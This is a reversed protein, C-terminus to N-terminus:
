NDQEPISIVARSRLDDVLAATESLGQIRGIEQRLRRREADSLSAIDGPQVEHLQLLVYDGTALTIGTASITDGATAPLLFAEQVLRREAAQSQRDILGSDVVDLEEAAAIDAFPTGGRLQTLLDDGHNRALDRARSDLLQQRAQDHVEELPRPAAPEHELNRIVVLHEASIEVPESNAGGELIDAQFAVAAVQPHEGIGTGGARTLWDSSQLELDLADAAGQLSDPQEFVLNALLESRDYFLESRQESLYEALLEARAEEFPRAVEPRIDTLEIIHFGFPSRVIDSRGGKELAFVAQEFEPTMLGRGFFGLDGGNGASGPDDSESKALEGFDEGADLRQLVSEARARAAAIAEDDADAPLSVLIHRAQREEPTIFREPQDDYLQRLAEEDIDGPVEINEAKLEIYQLRVREPTMFGELHSDYWTRIDEDSIEVKDTFRALPLTLHSFRRLQRQLAYAMDATAATPAATGTIGNIIQQTLMERSLRWEFESPNMGQLRLAREYREKSFRGDEQFGQVASIRAAVLQPSIAFGESEAEQLLLQERILQELASKKLVEENILAPDYADGLREQVQARLLQYARQHEGLPIDVDNVTAAFVRSDSQFYWNLGFFSFAIALIGLLVWGVLGM